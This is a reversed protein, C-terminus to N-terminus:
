PQAGLPVATLVRFCEDYSYHKHKKFLEKRQANAEAWDYNAVPKRLSHDVPLADIIGMKMNREWMLYSWVNEYGWGMPSTMDFPFVLEFCSKHISVVPGIEVFRTQRGLVGMQQGVIPHDIYSNTTRAPQAICFELHEQLTIFRDMFRDPLVVDDDILIVYDYLTLDENELVDSIIEFKPTKERLTRVTVRALRPSPPASGLGVWRQTVRHVTSAAIDAVIQDATNLQDALYVGLVLVNRPLAAGSTTDLEPLDPPSPRTPGMAKHYHPAPEGNISSGGAGSGLRYLICYEDDWARSYRADLHAAFEQYHELWWFSTQPFLLFQGGKARLAELHLIAQSSDAPHHGAYVGSDAQPFHSARAADLDLLRDDGRSVVLVAADRPLVQQCIERVRQILEKYADPGAQGGHHSLGVARKVGRNLVETAVQMLRAGVADRGHADSVHTRGQTALREWLGQDKLLHQIAAAFDAPADAVLVHEGDKLHLGEVGVATSVSPTGAMLAQILKRKTGAGYLLPIITVRVRHLYPLISPVWGIMHVHRLGRGYSLVSENLENGVIFVPHVSLVAPDLRPLVENCLYKVASVNPAHRFNGLFLIGKRDDFPFPSCPVEESDHIAYTPTTGALFDNLLDAEKHSVTLVGDAAAYVNLERMMESAFRQDLLRISEGASGRQFAGRAGRLFHLDISDVLIRTAPSAKRILPLLTEAVHWFALIALDPQGASLLQELRPNFGVYTAVSRQQLLKAYRQGDHAERAALSVEWNAERLLEVWDFIRRSGSERDYEPM